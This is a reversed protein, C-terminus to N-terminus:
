FIPRKGFGGGGPTEISISDGKKVALRVKGTMKKGNSLTKGARGRNGGALGYPGLKQRDSICSFTMDQLFTYERIIGQGGKYKGRGGSKSRTQYREVRVPYINEIAEVPTNMTNTMHMHLSDQGNKNPMAGAGGAITEYYSWSNTGFSVNTMTGYSAAPIKDPLAKSLAGFLVDVIRQSTEVNGACVAAPSQANVISGLPAIVQVSELIGDNAPVDEPLLCKLVYLVCSVTVAFPANINGKVQRDSGTFDIVLKNGSSVIRVMIKVPRPDIGDDDLFDTFTYTGRPINRIANEAIARSYGIIKRSYDILVSDSYRNIMSGLRETAHNCAGIMANIDGEFEQPNRVNRKIISLLSPTLLTPPIRLGEQYIDSSPGMSGPTTGGIDSLHARCASYFLPRNHHRGGQGLLRPKEPCTVRRLRPSPPHFVPMILTVDPLHTGGAFPDNLIVIDGQKFKCTELAAQVSLGMAGLHVPIHEAQAILRGDRNFIACSCDRREKINASHSARVLHHGMEEAISCFINKFIELKLSTHVM